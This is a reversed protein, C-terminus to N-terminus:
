GDAGNAGPTGFLVGRSGGAGGSGVPIGFGGARAGTRKPELLKQAVHARQLSVLM